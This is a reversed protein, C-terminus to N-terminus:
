PKAQPCQNAEEALRDLITKIPTVAKWPGGYYTKDIHIHMDRFSPLALLGAADQKPLRSQPLQAGYEIQAIRGDAILLHAIETLTAIIKENEKRYASELRVNTIWYGTSM